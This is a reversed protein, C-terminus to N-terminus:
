FNPKSTNPGQAIIDKLKKEKIFKNIGKLMNVRGTLKKKM